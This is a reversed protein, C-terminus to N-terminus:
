RAKLYGDIASGRRLRVVRNFQGKMQQSSPDNINGTGTGAVADRCLSTM